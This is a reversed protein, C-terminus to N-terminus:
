PTTSPTQPRRAPCVPSAPEGCAIFRTVDENVLYRTHATLPNAYLGLVSSAVSVTVDIINLPPPQDKPTMQRYYPRLAYSLLDNPDSFAVVPVPGVDRFRTVRRNDQDLPSARAPSRTQVDSREGRTGYLQLLSDAPINTVSPPKSPQALTGMEGDSKAHVLGLIPAQNAALFVVRTRERLSRGAKIMAAAHASGSESAAPNELLHIADLIMRSGLSEAIIAVGRPNASAQVALSGIQATSAPGIREMRSNPRMQPASEARKQLTAAQFASVISPGSEGVYVLADALCDDLLGDKLKSNLLARRPPPEPQTDLGPTDVSSGDESRRCYASKKSQDFCLRSKAARTLGSWVIAHAHLNTPSSGPADARDPLRIDASYVQLQQDAGNETPNDPPLANSHLTGGVAAALETIAERAWSSKHDCMGHVLFVDLGEPETAALDLLGPFVAHPPNLRTPASQCGGLLALVPMAALMSLVFSRRM